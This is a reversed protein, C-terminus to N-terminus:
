LRIDRLAVWGIGGLFLVNLAGLVAVVLVRIKGTWAQVMNRWFQRIGEIVVTKVSQGELDLGKLHDTLSSRMQQEFLGVLSPNIEALKALAGDLFLDISHEAQQQSSTMRLQVNAQNVWANNVELEELLSDVMQIGTHEVRNAISWFSIGVMMCICLLGLLFFHRKRLPYKKNFLRVYYPLLVFYLVAIVLGIFLGALIASFVSGISGILIDWM